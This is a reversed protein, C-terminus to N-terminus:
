SLMVDVTLGVWVLVASPWSHVVLSQLEAAHEGSTLAGATKCSSQVTFLAVLLTGKCLGETCVHNFRLM